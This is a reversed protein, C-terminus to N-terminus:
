SKPPTLCYLRIKQKRPMNGAGDGNPLLTVEGRQRLEHLRKSLIARSVSRGADNRIVRDVLEDFTFPAQGFTAIASRVVKIGSPFRRPRLRYELGQKLIDIQPAENFVIATALQREAAEIHQLGRQHRQEYDARIAAFIGRVQEAVPNSAYPAVCANVTTESTM